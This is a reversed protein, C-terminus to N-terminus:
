NEDSVEELVEVMNENPNYQMSGTFGGIDEHVLEVAHEESDTEVTVDGSVYYTKQWFVNYKTM